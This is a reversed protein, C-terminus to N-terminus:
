NLQHCGTPTVSSFLNDPVVDALLVLVGGGGGLLVLALALATGLVVVAVVTTAADTVPVGVGGVM